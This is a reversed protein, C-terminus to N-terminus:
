RSDIFAAIEINTASIDEIRLRKYVDTLALLAPECQKRRDALSVYWGKQKNLIDSLKESSDLKVIESRLGREKAYYEFPWTLHPHSCLIIKDRSGVKAVLYDVVRRFDTASHHVYGEKLLPKVSLALVLVLAFARLGRWHVSTIGKAVLLFFAFHGAIASRIIYIPTTFKSILYPLLIPTFVLLLLLLIHWGENENCREGFVKRAFVMKRPLGSLVGLVMLGIWLVLGGHTGSFAAFTRIVSDVTPVEVWFGEQGIQLIRNILLGFWPLSLLVIVGQATIWKRLSVGQMRNEAWYFLALVYINEAILIFLGYFQTYVLLTSALIYGFLRRPTPQELFKLLFYVSLVSSFALLSYMRAEQAYYISFASLALLLAAIAAVQRDFLLAGAKFTFYVSLISFIASPMRLSVESDGFIQMWFHLLLYYTPPHNDFSGVERFLDALKYSSFKLSFLEDLWFSHHGIYTLRLVTALVLIAPPLMRSSLISAVMKQQNSDNM